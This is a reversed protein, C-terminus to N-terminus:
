SAPEFDFSPKILRSRREPALKEIRVYVIPQAQAKHLKALELNQKCLEPDDQPLLVEQAGKPIREAVEPHEIVYRSFEVSLTVNKDFYKKEM